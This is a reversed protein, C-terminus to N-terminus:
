SVPANLKARYEETLARIPKPDLCNRIDIGGHRNAFEEVAEAHMQALVEKDGGAHERFLATMADMAAAAEASHAARKHSFGDPDPQETPITMGTTLFIRFAVSQAAALAKDGRDAAEGVATGTFSDGAPGRVTYEVEVEACKMGVNDTTRYRETKWSLVRPTFFVGHKRQAPGVANMVADIGRFNFGDDENRSTKAVEQVDRQLAAFAEHVPIQPPAPAQPEVTEAPDTM